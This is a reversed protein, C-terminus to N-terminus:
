QISKTIPEMQQLMQYLATQRDFEAIQEAVDGDRFEFCECQKTGIIATCRKGDEHSKLSHTCICRM